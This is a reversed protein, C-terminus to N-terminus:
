TTTKAFSQRIKIDAIVDKLPRGPGRARSAALEEKTKGCAMLELPPAYPFEQNFRAIIKGDADCFEVEDGLM